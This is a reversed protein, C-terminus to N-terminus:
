ERREWDNRVLHLLRDFEREQRQDAEAPILRFIRRVTYEGLRSLRFASRRPSVTAGVVLLRVEPAALAHAVSAQHANPAIFPIRGGHTWTHVAVRALVYHQIANLQRVPQPLQGYCHRHSTDMLLVSSSAAPRPYAALLAVM